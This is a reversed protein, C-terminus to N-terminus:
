CGVFLGGGKHATRGLLLPGAQATRFTLRLRGSLGGRPGRRVALVEISEPRPWACRGLEREVDIRLADGDGARRHHRTVDYATVSEWARSPAFLIDNEPDIAAPLLTLRGSSGARLVDMGELARATRRHDTEIDRWRIGRRQLESPAVYLVRRRPLDAVVAVHRHSGDDAPGGDPRHGSVYMPLEAGRRMGAQVRAMMARRGARAVVLPEAGDALGEVITFAMVGRAREEPRLLGLGVFRGDGLLLPGSVSETFTIAAHWLAEPSFRTGAAFREAREGRRDFPERQVRVSSVATRIGAHRLAQRVETALAERQAFHKGAEDGERPQPVAIRRGRGPLALPTVSRWGRAAEEFRAAMREDDARQLTGGIGGDAGTWVVQAFAWALDDAALPCTQPVYVTVRRISQNTQERGISPVPVVRVRSAKDAEAAGRGVLYCEILELLDPAARGLREAAQDRAHEVLEAARSLPWAAFGGSPDPLRLDFVFRREPADYVVPVFAAQPPKRFTTRRARSESTEPFRYSAFRHILSALSGNVPCALRIGGSGRSPLHVVRGDEAVRAEIHHSDVVEADAWAMDVGRGLQYLREAIGCITRAQVEGEAAADDWTWVFSVPVDARFLHPQITKETRIKGLSKSGSEVMDGDNNPVFFKFRQGKHAAPAAITPAPRDELWELAKTEEENLTEGNGAGAVLAQFLRAPSPPWEAGGDSGEGHFRGDHFRVSIVLARSM